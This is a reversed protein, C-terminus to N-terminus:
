YVVNGCDEHYTGDTMHYIVAFEALETKRLKLYTTYSIYDIFLPRIM